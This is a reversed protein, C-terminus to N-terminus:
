TDSSLDLVKPNPNFSAIFDAIVEVRLWALVTTPVEALNSLDQKLGPIYFDEALALAGALEALGGANPQKDTVGEYAENYVIQHQITWELPLEVWVDGYDEHPCYLKLPESRKRYKRGFFREFWNVKKDTM